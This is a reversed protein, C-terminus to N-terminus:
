KVVPAFIEEWTLDELRNGHAVLRSKARLHGGLHLAVKKKFVWGATIVQKKNPRKVSSSCDHHDLSDLESAM